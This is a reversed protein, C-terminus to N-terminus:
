VTKYLANHLNCYAYKLGAKLLFSTAAQWRIESVTINTHSHNILIRILMILIRFLSRNKIKNWSQMPMAM